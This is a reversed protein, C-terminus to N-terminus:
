VDAVSKYKYYVFTGEYGFVIEFNNKLFEIPGLKSRFTFYFM